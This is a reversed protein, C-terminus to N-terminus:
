DEQKRGAAVIFEGPIDYGAGSRCSEISALYEAHVEDRTHEDFKRYALAVPGGAFAALCAEEASDYHLLTSFRDSTVHSFGADRFTRALMDGAGLQFFLPCVESEVRRDTIPFIEAWGCNKREGWVAAVARGGPALARQMERLAQGPDPVYMLGLSCLAVDFTGPPLDLAEADMREFSVNRIGREGAASRAEDLMGDSLDTALVHGDPAVASAARFTVLGTGCAVDLVREDPRLAAAGMLRDQAPELQRRWGAEYDGAARDWGYRQIRRQFRAPDM